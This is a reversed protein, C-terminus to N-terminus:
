TWLAVWYTTGNLNIRGWSDQTNRTPGTGGITGLTAVAGGGPPDILLDMRVDATAVHFTNAPSATKFGIKASADLTMVNATVTGSSDIQDFILKGSAVGWRYGTKVAGTTLNPIGAGFYTSPGAVFYPTSLTRGAPAFSTNYDDISLEPPLLIFGGQATGGRWRGKCPKENYTWEQAAQGYGFAEIRGVVPTFSEHEYRSYDDIRTAKRLDLVGRTLNQPIGLMAPMATQMTSEAFGEHKKSSEWPGVVTAVTDNRTTTPPRVPVTPPTIVPPNRMFCESEFRWLGKRSGCVHSHFKNNDYRLYAYVLNPAHAPEIWDNGFEIPADRVPDNPKKFLANTTIHNSNVAEDDETETVLHKDPVDKQEGVDFPGTAYWSTLAVVYSKKAPLDAPPLTALQPPAPAGAFTAGGSTLGQVVAQSSSTAVPQPGSKTPTAPAGPARDIVLGYGWVGDQGGPALQWAIGNLYKGVRDPDKPVILCGPKPRVVRMMSQLRANRDPDVKFGAGMDCVWSGMLPDPKVNVAVLRPDTDHYLDYQRAEYDSTLSIGIFDLPFRPWFKGASGRRQDPTFTKMRVDPEYQKGFTPRVGFGVSANAGTATADEPEVTVVPTAFRWMSCTRKKGKRYLLQGGHIDGASEPEYKYQGIGGQKDWRDTVRVALISTRLDVSWGGKDYDQHQLPLIGFGDRSDKIYM